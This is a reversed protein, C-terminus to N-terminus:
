ASSPMRSLLGDRPSPSTYLLCNRVVPVEVLLAAAGKRVRLDQDAVGAGVKTCSTANVAMSANEKPMFIAPNVVKGRQQGDGHNGEQPLIPNVPNLGAREPPLLMASRLGDKGARKHLLLLVARASGM